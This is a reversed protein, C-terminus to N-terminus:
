FICVEENDKDKTKESVYYSFNRTDYRICMSSCNSDDLCLKCPTLKRKGCAVDKIRSLTYGRIIVKKKVIM